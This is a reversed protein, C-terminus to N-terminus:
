FGDLLTRLADALVRKIKQGPSATTRWQRERRLSDATVGHRSGALHGRFVLWGIKGPSVGLYRAAEHQPLMAAPPLTDLGPAQDEPLPNRAPNDMITITRM